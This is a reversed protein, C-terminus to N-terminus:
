GPGSTYPEQREENKVEAANTLNTNGSLSDACPDRDERDLRRKRLLLAALLLVGFVLIFAAVKWYGNDGAKLPTIMGENSISIEAIGGNTESISLPVPDRDALGLKAATLTGTAPDGNLIVTVPSALLSHGSETGTETITYSDSGLGRIVLHGDPTPSLFSVSDAYAKTGQVSYAGEGTKEFYLLGNETSISFRAKSADSLGTKMLDIGYTAARVLPSRLTYNERSRDTRITWISENTDPGETGVAAHSGLLAEYIVYLGSNFTLADIKELGESTISLRFGHDSDSVTYDSSPSLEKYMDLIDYSLDEDKLWAGYVVKAIKKHILGDTMNDILVAEDYHGSDGLNPLNIYSVFSLTSGTRRDDADQLTMDSLIIKKGSELTRSKPYVSVDYIWLDRPDITEGGADIRATNIQPLTLLVPAHGSLIRLDDSDPIQTLALVYLGPSLNTAKTSGDAGSPPLASGATRVLENLETENKAARDWADQIDALLYYSEAGDNGSGPSLIDPSIFNMFKDNMHGACVTVTGDLTQTLVDGVKWLSYGAGSLPTADDPVSRSEPYTDWVEDGSQSIYSHVTLSCPNDAFIDYPQTFILTAATFFLYLASGIRRM